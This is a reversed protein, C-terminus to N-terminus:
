QQTLADNLAVPDVGGVRILKDRGREGSVLTVMSPSVGVRRAILRRLARSARGDVPPASVRELLVGDPVGILEDKRSRARVRVNIRADTM